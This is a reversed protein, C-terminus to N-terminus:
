AAGPTGCCSKGSSRRACGTACGPVSRSRSVPLRRHGPWFKWFNALTVQARECCPTAYKATDKRTASKRLFSLPSCSLHQSKYVHGYLATAQVQFSQDRLTIARHACYRRLINALETGIGCLGELEKQSLLQLATHSTLNHIVLLNYLGVSVEDPSVLGETTEPADPLADSFQGAEENM